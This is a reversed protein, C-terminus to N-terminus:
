RADPDGEPPVICIFEFADEGTNELSHDVDPPVFAWCGGELPYVTGDITANCRGSLIFMYHPWPHSHFPAATGEKVSFHRAVYDGWHRRPSFVTRKEVGPANAGGEDTRIDSIRGALLEFASMTPM